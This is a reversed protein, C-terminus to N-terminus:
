PKLSRKSKEASGYTEFLKAEHKLAQNELKQEKHTLKHPTGDAECEDDKAHAQSCRKRASKIEPQTGRVM